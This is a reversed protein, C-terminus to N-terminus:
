RSNKQPIEFRNYGALDAIADVVSFILVSVNDPSKFSFSYGTDEKFLPISRQFFTQRSQYVVLVAMKKPLVLGSPPLYIYHNERGAKPMIDNSTIVGKNQAHCFSILFFLLLSINIKM